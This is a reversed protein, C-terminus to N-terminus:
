RPPLTGSEDHDSTTPQGRLPSPEARSRVGILPLVSILAGAMVMGYDTLYVSDLNQLATQLTQRAPDVLVVLPWVHSREGPPAADRQQIHRTAPRHQAKLERHPVQAMQACFTGAAPEDLLETSLEPTPM